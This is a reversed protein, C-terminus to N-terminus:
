FSLIELTHIESHPLLVSGGRELEIEVYDELWKVFIATIVREDDPYDVTSFRAYMATRHTATSDIVM